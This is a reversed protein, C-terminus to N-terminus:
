CDKWKFGNHTREQQQIAYVPACSKRAFAVASRKDGFYHIGHSERGLAKYTVRFM